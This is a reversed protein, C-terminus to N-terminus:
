EYFNLYYYICLQIYYASPIVEVKLHMSYVCLLRMYSTLTGSHGHPVVILGNQGGMQSEYM